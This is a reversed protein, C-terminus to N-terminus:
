VHARGIKYEWTCNATVSVTTTPHQSDLSVSYASLGITPSAGSQMVSVPVSAPFDSVTSKVYFIGTRVDDGSTNQDVSVVLEASSDGSQKDTHIWTVDNQISWPTSEATIDITRQSAVNDFTLDTVWLYLSHPSLSPYQTYEELFDESCGLALLGLCLISLLRKM